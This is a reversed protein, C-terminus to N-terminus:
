SVQLDCQICFYLNLTIHELVSKIPDMAPGGSCSFYHMSTEFGLREQVYYTIRLDCQICFCSNLIIHGSSHKIYGCRAWRLMSFPADINRAGFARFCM